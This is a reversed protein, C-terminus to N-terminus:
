SNKFTKTGSAEVRLGFGALEPIGFTIGSAGSRPTISWVRRDARILGDLFQDPNVRTELATNAAFDHVADVHAGHIADIIEVAVFTPAAAPMMEQKWRFLVRGAIGCRHAVESLSAGAQVAEEVIRRKDAESFKRRHGERAPPVIPEACGYTM